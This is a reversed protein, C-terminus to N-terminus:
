RILRSGRHDFGAGVVAAASRAADAGQSRRSGDEFLGQGGALLATAHAAADGLESLAKTSLNNLNDGVKHYNPDYPQGATGGYIEAEEATKIGEAGSFLGGAPVGAAIFPGYDSRGNFDTPSTVLGQDAFYDTFITEIASSGPPGAAAPDGSGDGDYVFRVYNPSGLMDFNLNAYVNGIDDGLQEVYHTSGLLGQEEAGFFIFRVQREPEIKLRSMQIAIELITASGSGNDNIGPGEAVSDLHAGVVVAQGADGRRSTAIINATQRTESVTSTTVRVTVPGTRAATALAAGDPYSLAVAPVSKPRSLTGAFLDVRGPTGQNYIVVADYGAAAANDAKVEFTCVGRQILAVEPATASAPVFDEATCGFASDPTAASGAAVVAGTVDGSGAYVLVVTQYATAKPSIQGVTAPALEEFYPFEFPQTTVGYGAKRLKVAVYNASADYGPAGAVRNGDHRDAIRQFAREHTLIGAVTVATRLKAAGHSDDAAAAPKATATAPVVPGLLGVLLLPALLLASRRM